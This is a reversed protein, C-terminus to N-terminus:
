RGSAADIRPGYLRVSNRWVCEAVEAASLGKIEAIAALSVEVNKPENRHQSDPGLVPSDTELLLSELPLRKVLKQKQASRVISPPISLFFGAEVAPLASGAKGDFAHLQVRDAGKDLLLQIARRGASRSHVNLPLDLERALDVFNSFIEMQMERGDEDQVKWLDLGVEGIAIWQDAHLRIFQELEDALKRDLITPFLGAAPLILDPYKAALALNAQADALDEGVAVIGKIDAELARELVAALDGTFAEDCLHAHTDIMGPM